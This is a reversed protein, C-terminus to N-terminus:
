NGALWDSWWGPVRLSSMVLIWRAIRVAMMARAGAGKVVGAGAWTIPRAGVTLVAGAGTERGEEGVVGGSRRWPEPMRGTAIRGTPALGPWGVVSHLAM